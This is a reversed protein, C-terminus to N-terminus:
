FFDNGVSVLVPVGSKGALRTKVSRYFNGAVAHFIFQELNNPCYLFLGIM